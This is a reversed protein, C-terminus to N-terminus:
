LKAKSIQKHIEPTAMLSASGFWPTMEALLVGAKVAPDTQVLKEAEAITAVALIFIGRYNKDNESFPGAVALKGLDALRGINAMHGAFLDARAQDTFNADNPGTKLIVFVYRRMGNENGGLKAALQADYSPKPAAVNGATHGHTSLAMAVSFSLWLKIPKM